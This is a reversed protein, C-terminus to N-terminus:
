PDWAAGKRLSGRHRVIWVAFWLAHLYVFTMTGAFATIADAIHDQTGRMRAVVDQEHKVKLTPRKATGM